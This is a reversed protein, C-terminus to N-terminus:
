SCWDWCLWSAAMRKGDATLEQRALRLHASLLEEIQLVLQALLDGLNPQTSQPM